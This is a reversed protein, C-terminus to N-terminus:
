QKKIRQMARREEDQKQTLILRLMYAMGLLFSVFAAWVSFGVTACAAIIWYKDVYTKWLAGAKQQMKVLVDGGEFQEYGKETLQLEIEFFILSEVDLNNVLHM